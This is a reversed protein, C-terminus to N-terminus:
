ALAMFLGGCTGAAKGAQAPINIIDGLGVRGNIGPFPDNKFAAKGLMSPRSAYTPSQFSAVQQEKKVEQNQQQHQIQHQQQVQQQIHFNQGGGSINTM